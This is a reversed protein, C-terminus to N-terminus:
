ANNASKKDRNIIHKKKIQIPATGSVVAIVEHHKCGLGLYKDALDSMFKKYEVDLEQGLPTLYGESDFLEKTM